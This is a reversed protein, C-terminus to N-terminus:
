FMDIEKLLLLIKKCSHKRELNEAYFTERLKDNM